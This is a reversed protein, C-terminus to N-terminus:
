PRPKCGVFLKTTVPDSIASFLFSYVYKIKILEFPVVVFCETAGASCRTILSLQRTMETECSLTKFAKGCFDNAASLQYFVNGHSFPPRLSPRLHRVIQHCTETNRCATSSRPRKSVPNLRIMHLLDEGVSTSVDSAPLASLTLTRNPFHHAVIKHAGKKSWHAASVAPQRRAANWNCAPDQSFFCSLV